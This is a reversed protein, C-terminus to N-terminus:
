GFISSSMQRRRLSNADQEQQGASMGTYPPAVQAQRQAMYPNEYKAATDAAASPAAHPVYENRNVSARRGHMAQPPPEFGGFAQGNAVMPFGPQQNPAGFQHSNREFESAVQARLEAEARAAQLRDAGHLGDMGMDSGRRGHRPAGGSVELPRDQQPRSAPQAAGWPTAGGQPQQAMSQQQAMWQAGDLPSGGQSHQTAGYSAPQRWEDRDKHAVASRASLQPQPQPEQAYGGGLSAGAGSSGAESHLFAQQAQKGGSAISRFHAAADRAARLADSAM